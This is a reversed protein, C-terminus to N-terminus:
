NNPYLLLNPILSDHSILSINKIFSKIDLESQPHYQFKNPHLYNAVYVTNYPLSLQSKAFNHLLPNRLLLILSYLYESQYKNEKPLLLNKTSISNQNPLLYQQLLNSASISDQHKSLMLENISNFKLYSLQLTLNHSTIEKKIYISNHNQSIHINIFFPTNTVNYSFLIYINPNLNYLPLYYILLFSSMGQQKDNLNFLELEQSYNLHYFTPINKFNNPNLTLYEKYLLLLSNSSLNNYNNLQALILKGNHIQLLTKNKQPLNFFPISPLQTPNSYKNPTNAETIQALSNNNLLLIISILYVLCKM